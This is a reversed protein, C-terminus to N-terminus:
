EWVSLLQMTRPTNAKLCVAEGDSALYSYGGKGKGLLRIIKYEKGNVPLTDPMITDIMEIGGFLSKSNGNIWSIGRRSWDPGSRRWFDLFREKEEPQHINKPGYMTKSSTGGIDLLEGFRGYDKRYELCAKRIKPDYSVNVISDMDLFVAESHHELASDVQILVIRFDSRRYGMVYFCFTTTNTDFIFGEEFKSSYM